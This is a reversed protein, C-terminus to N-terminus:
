VNFLENSYADSYKSPFAIYLKLIVNNSKQENYSHYRDISFNFIILLSFPPLIDSVIPSVDVAAM